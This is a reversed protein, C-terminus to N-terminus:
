RTHCSAWDAVNDAATQGVDGVVGKAGSFAGLAASEASYVFRGANGTAAWQIGGGVLGAGTGVANLFVGTFGLAEAPGADGVVTLATVGAAADFGFGATSVGKGFTAIGRGLADWQNAPAGCADQAQRQNNQPGGGGGGSPGGFSTMQPIYPSYLQKVADLSLAAARVGFVVVESVDTATNDSGAVGGCNQCAPQGDDRLGFPDFRTMPNAGAYNYWNIGNSYGIPDTQLFRGPVPDYVRAKYYYLQTGPLIIQGTYAFLSGSSWNSAEGFAAYGQSATLAGTANSWAIVSNQNDAQLWNGNANGAGQHWVVPDDM